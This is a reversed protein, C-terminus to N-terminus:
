EAVYQFVENLVDEQTMHCTVRNELAEASLRGTCDLIRQAFTKRHNSNLLWAKLKNQYGSRDSAFANGIQARTWFDWYSAEAYQLTSAIGDDAIWNDLLPDIDIGGIDFMLLITFANERMFRTSACGPTEKLGDAFFALAFNDLAVREADTFSGAPCRGVRDLYLEVSHHLEENQSLLEFLRPIFYKIEDAPQVESKATDNYQYFHNRYLSALPLKRMEKELKEDMCCGTCVDLLTKPSEYGRFAAYLNAVAESVTKPTTLKEKNKTAMATKHLKPPVTSAFSYAGSKHKVDKHQLSRALHPSIKRLYTVLQSQFVNEFSQLVIQPADHRVVLLHALLSALLYRAMITVGAFAALWDPCRANAAL